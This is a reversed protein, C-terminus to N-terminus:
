VNDEQNDLLTHNYRDWLDLVPIGLEKALTAVRNGSLSPRDLVVVGKVTSALYTDRNHYVDQYYNDAIYVVKDATSILTDLKAKSGHFWKTGINRYPLVMSYPIANSILAEVWAGNWGSISGTCYGYRPQLERVITHALEQVVVRNIYDHRRFDLGVGALVMGPDMDIM